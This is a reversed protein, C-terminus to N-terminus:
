WIQTYILWIIQYLLQELICLYNHPDDHVFFINISNDPIALQYITQKESIKESKRRIKKQNTNMEKMVRPKWPTLVSKRTIRRLPLWIKVLKLSSVKKWVKELMGISSLVSPTCSTSSIILVLGLRLSPLPTPCCASPVNSRPLTVAPCLPQLNTTSVSRSVLPVGTSLNSPANPRSPPLPLTSMRPSLMVETCSAALWTSATVPIVGM